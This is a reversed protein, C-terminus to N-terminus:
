SQDFQLGNDSGKRSAVIEDALMTLGELNLRKGDVTIHKRILEFQWRCAQGATEDEVARNGEYVIMDIAQLAAISDKAEFILGGLRNRYSVPSALTQNYLTYARDKFEDQRDFVLSVRHVKGRKKSFQMVQGIAAEFALFWPNQFRPDQRIDTRLQEYDRRFVAAGYAQMDLGKFTSIMRRQMELRTDEDDKLHAFRKSGVVCDSMHFPLPIVPKRAAERMWRGQLEKCVRQPMLLGLISLIQAQEHKGSEDFYAKMFCAEGDFSFLDEIIAYAPERM